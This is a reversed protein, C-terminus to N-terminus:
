GWTLSTTLDNMVGMSDTYPQAGTSRGNQNSHEYHNVDCTNYGQSSSIRDNWWPDINRIDDVQFDRLGDEICKSTASFIHTQGGNDGRYRHEFEISLVYYEVAAATSRPLSSAENIRREFAWDTAAAAPDNPADTIRGNTAAAIAARFESFCSVKQDPLQVVCHRGAAAGAAPPAAVAPGTGVAVAAIAALGVVFVKRQIM